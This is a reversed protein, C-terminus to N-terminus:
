VGEEDAYKWGALWGAHGESGEPYPNDGSDVDDYYAQYGEDQFVDTM